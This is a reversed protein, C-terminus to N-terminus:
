EFLTLFETEKTDTYLNYLVFGEPGKILTQTSNNSTNDGLHSNTETREFQVLFPQSIGVSLDASTSDEKTLPIHDCSVM